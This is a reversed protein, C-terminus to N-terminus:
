MLVRFIGELARRLVEDPAADSDVVLHWAGGVGGTPVWGERERAERQRVYVDWTADSADGGAEARADLRRRVVEDTATCEILWAQAGAKHAVGAVVRWGRPDSFTADLIVSGRRLAEVGREFLAAYTRESMEHSYLGEDDVALSHDNLAMGAIRKREVDSSVIPLGWHDGLAKALTSKGTGSLGMVAFLWREPLFEMAYAHALGYYSRAEDEFAARGAADLDSNELQLSVVKAQVYARYCKFFPLLGGMEADKSFEVYADVLEAGLDARMVHDFDMALFALDLAVDGYRYDDSFELCDIFQIRHHLWVHSAHLDGHGDRVRGERERRRMAPEWVDLWARSYAVIDDFVRHDILRGVYRQTQAFNEEILRVLAEFGGRRTIEKSQDANAHFIAVQRAVRRIDETAVEGKEILVDLMWDHALRRMKVAYEVVEGGGGIVIVGDELTVPLVGLYVDPSMRRNLELERETNAKRKALTTFDAFGIDVPKKIKYVFQDTFFLQSVHTEAVEIVGSIAVGELVYAEPSRLAAVVLKHEDAM